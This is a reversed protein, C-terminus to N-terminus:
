SGGSRSRDTRSIHIEVRRIISPDLPAKSEDSRAYSGRRAEVDRRCQASMQGDYVGRNGLQYVQGAEADRSKSRHTLNRVGKRFYDLYTRSLALNAGLIGTGFEIDGWIAAWCYTWSLDSTMLGLSSARVLAFTTSIVGLSMLGCVAVKDRLSLTLDWVVAIPLLTCIIDTLVSMATQLYISYIRVRPDWCKERQSKWYASVPTCEALLVIDPLLTTVVLGAMVTWLFYRLPKTNKIRLVLLCVSLKLLCLLPFLFLQTLWTLFNVHTYDAKSLFQRHRGNGYQVSVCQIIVRGVAVLTAAAIIYDDPGLFNRSYRVLCRLTTTLVCLTVMVIAIVLLKPGANDDEAAM